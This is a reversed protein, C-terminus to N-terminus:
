FRAELGINALKSVNSGRARALGLDLFWSWTRNVRTNLGLGGELTNRALDQGLATFTATPTGDFAAAFGLNAGSLVRQWALWGSLNSRGLAWDFGTGYRLGLTAYSATHGQAAATLGFGSAGQEAFAAQQLRIGTMDAYPTWHGLTDGLELTGATITDTR